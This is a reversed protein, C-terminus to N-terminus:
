KSSVLAGIVVVLVVFVVFAIVVKKIVTNRKAGLNGYETESTEKEYRQWDEDGPKKRM